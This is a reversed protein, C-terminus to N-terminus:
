KQVSDQVIIPIGTDPFTATLKSGTYAEFQVARNGVKSFMVNIKWTRVGSDDSAPETFAIKQNVGDIVVFIKTISSPTKLSFTVTKGKAITKSTSDATYKFTVAIKVPKQPVLASGGSTTSCKFQVSRNGGTTFFVKANWIRAGNETTYTNYIKLADRDILTQIKNVKDSTVIKFYVPEGTNASTKDSIVQPVVYTGDANTSLTGFSPEPTPSPAQTPTSTPTSTPTESPSPSSSPTPVSTEESPSPTTSAKGSGGSCACLSVLFVVSLIVSATIKLVKRLGYLAPNNLM